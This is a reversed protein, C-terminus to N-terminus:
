ACIEHIQLYGWGTDMPEDRPMPGELVSPTWIPLRLGNHLFLNHRMTSSWERPSDRNKHCSAVFIPSDGEPLEGKEAMEKAVRTVEAGDPADVVEYGAFRLTFTILNRIDAEDEAILIRAM